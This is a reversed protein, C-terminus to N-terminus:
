QVDVCVHQKQPRKFVDPLEKVLEVVPLKGCQSGLVLFWSGAPVRPKCSMGVHRGKTLRLVQTRTSICAHMHAGTKYLLLLVLQTGKRSGLWCYLLLLLIIIRMINVFFM